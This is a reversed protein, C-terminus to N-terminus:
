KHQNGTRPGREQPNGDVPGPPMLTRRASRAHGELGEFRGFTDAMPAIRSAAGRDLCIISTKKLFDDVNLPSSYRAAGATPLTHSPGAVYDGHAASSWPGLLIAGANRFWALAMWPEEVDLHLHEPAYADMIEAATAMDAVEVLWGNGSLAARVIDARPLDELARELAEMMPEAVGSGVAVLVAGNAPDHETQCVLEAAVGEPSASADAVVGVESPGALMDIGVVGFVQRKAENVYANGPGVVKDVKPVVETGYALAGVAQAGGMAFVRDVGAVAAAALTADPPLGTERAPPTALVLDEVGAVRAPVATMLVTSPYAGRGGPVYIGVRRLPSIRQGLMEGERAMDMWTARRQPEHFRRVRDAALNLADWLETARVRAVAAEIAEPHVEIASAGPHDYIRTRELVAVDGRLAVDALIDRVAAELGTPDFGQRKAFKAALEAVDRRDVVKCRRLM